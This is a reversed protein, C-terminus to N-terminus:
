KMWPLHMDMIMNLFAQPSMVKSLREVYIRCNKCQGQVSEICKCAYGADVQDGVYVKDTMHIPEESGYAKRLEHPTIYPNAEQLELIFRALFMYWDFNAVWQNCIGYRPCLTGYDFRKNKPFIKGAYMLDYDYVQVFWHTTITFSFPYQYAIKHPKPFYTIYINGVHLDDHRFQYKALVCLLQAVQVAIQLQFNKQVIHDLNNQVFDGLDEGQLRPTVIYHLDLNNDNELIRKFLSTVMKAGTPSPKKIYEKIKNKISHAFRIHDECALIWSAKFLLKEKSNLNSLHDIISMSCTGKQIGSLLHPTYQSLETKVFMYIERELELANDDRSSPPAIKFVVEDSNLKGFLFVAGSNTDSIYVHPKELEQIVCNNDNKDDNDNDHELLSELTELEQVHIDLHTQFENLLKNLHNMHSQKSNKRQPYNEIEPLNKVKQIIDKLDHISKELKKFNSEM